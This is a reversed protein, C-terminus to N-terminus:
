LLIVVPFFIFVHIIAEADEKGMLGEAERYTPSKFWSTVSAKNNSCKLSTPGIRDM